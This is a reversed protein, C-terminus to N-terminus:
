FRWTFKAYASRKVQTRRASNTSDVFEEHLDRLLNQGVLSLSVGEGVLWSLQTDLRTYSPESPDTLRGVFYASTDWSLAHTFVFHSRLQASHDPSSGEAAAVSTTDQSAPALHMHIEEFAYGPSLTWRPTPQWNVAFEIGETEGHMLNEYTIPLIFHTPPPINDLFPSSPERTYQDSYNNYYATFDISLTRRVTTRYGMEYAILGEDKVQPTGIFTVLVPIGGPGPFASLTYRASADIASPTREAKSVAAWLTHHPSLAWTVGASPMFDFGTYYNHELKAGVTLYFRDPVIAIEDQVFSSFLQTNLKSPVFSATLNGDSNWPSYVYTLGWVINQRAWGSFHHQFDLDLTSRRERIIDNLEYRDYSVRLTTDSDTSLTHGWVAQVFEGTQNALQEINQPASATVSPFDSTPIGERADYINGQVTLTDKSSRAGDTRFGGQLLHWCDGGDQDASNPLHDQNFYKTYVRYDTSDGASGGYQIAGFGQDLNGGGGLVLGGLTESGKKTIINIVGNVANAGWISGGPGRIVEIREIDAFPLDLVDWFVGGFTQTYVPRGDVLVLLENSFRGNFGRASIAWTNGNIQSVDMGPVMRLLDPINTAGSRRIDEPSIVFVAAATRSLTEETRSVSTVQINMLDEISQNTLDVSTQQPSAPLAGSALITM